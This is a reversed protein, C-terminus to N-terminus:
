ISTRKTTISMNMMNKLVHSHGGLVRINILNVALGVAGIITMPISQIEPPSFLHRYGEYFIYISLLILAISNALAALIEM